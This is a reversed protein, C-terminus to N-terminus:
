DTEERMGAAIPDPPVWRRIAYVALYFLPTDLLAVAAKILYGDRIRLIMESVPIFEGSEQSRTFATVLVTVIATDVLQSILTSGNNRLWLHKGKTLRKWFHFVRIDIFQAVLYAAMSGLLLRPAFMFVADYNEQSLPSDTWIPAVRGLYIVGISLGSVLFGVAVIHNARKRGYIESIIDTVLFTIPYAFIGVSYIIRGGFVEFEFFKAAVVNTIVLAGLFIGALLIYLREHTSISGPQRSPNGSPSTLAQAM